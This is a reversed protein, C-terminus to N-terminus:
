INSISGWSLQPETNCSNTFSYIMKRLDMIRYYPNLGTTLPIVSFIDNVGNNVHQGVHLGLCFICNTYLSFCTKELRVRAIECALSKMCIHGVVAPFSYKSLGVWASPLNWLSSVHFSIGLTKKTKELKEKGPTIKLFIHCILFYNLELLGTWKLNPVGCSALPTM